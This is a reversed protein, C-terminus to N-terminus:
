ENYAEARANDTDVARRYHRALEDLEMGNLRSPDFGGGAM